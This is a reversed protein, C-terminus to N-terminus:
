CVKSITNDLFRDLWSYTTHEKTAKEIEIIKNTDYKVERQKRERRKRSKRRKNQNNEGQYTNTEDVTPTSPSMLESQTPMMIREFFSPLYENGQTKEDFEEESDM